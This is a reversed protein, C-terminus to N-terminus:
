NAIHRYVALSGAMDGLDAGLDMETAYAHVAIWTLPGWAGDLAGAYYGFKALRSQVAIREPATLGKFSYAPPILHINLPRGPHAIPWNEPADAGHPLLRDDLDWIRHGFDIKAEKAMPAVPAATTGGTDAAAQFAPLACALGACLALLAPRRTSTM